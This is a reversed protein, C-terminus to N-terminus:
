TGVSPFELWKFQTNSISYVPKTVDFTTMTYRREAIVQLVDDHTPNAWMGIKRNYFFWSLPHTKAWWTMANLKDVKIKILRDFGGGQVEVLRGAELFDPTYRIVPPLSAVHIPPRNLGYRVYKWGNAQAVAEYAGEAEDGMAGFRGAFSQKHFTSVESGDASSPRCV